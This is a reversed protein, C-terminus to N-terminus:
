QSGPPRGLLQCVSEGKWRVRATARQAPHRVQFIKSKGEVRLPPGSARCNECKAQPVRELFERLVARASALSHSTWRVSAKDGVSDDSIVMASEESDGQRPGAEEVSIGEQEEGRGKKTGSEPGQYIDALAMAEKLHGAAILHLRQSYQSVQM